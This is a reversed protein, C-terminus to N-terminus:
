SYTTLFFYFYLTYIFDTYAAWQLVIDNLIVLLQLYKGETNRNSTFDHFLQSATQNVHGSLSQNNRGGGLKRGIQDVTYEFNYSNPGRGKYQEVKENLGSPLMGTMSDVRDAEDNIRKGKTGLKGPLYNMFNGINRVIPVEKEILSGIMPAAKGIFNDVKVAISKATNWANSLWDSFRTISISILELLHCYSPFYAFV